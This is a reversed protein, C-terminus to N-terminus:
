QITFTDRPRWPKLMAVITRADTLPFEAETGDPWCLVGYQSAIKVTQGLEAAKWKLSKLEGKEIYSAKFLELGSLPPKIEEVPASEPQPTEVVPEPTAPEEAVVPNDPQAPEEPQLPNHPM